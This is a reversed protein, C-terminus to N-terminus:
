LTARPTSSQEEEAALKGALERFSLHGAAMFILGLGVQFGTQCLWLVNAYAMGQAKVVAAPFFLTVGVRLAAQFTGLMGPASPIMVGGVLVSMLMFAQFLTLGFPLCAGAGPPCAFARSLMAMGLGNLGWYAVTYLTFAILQGAGPLQRMAGVFADVVDAVRDAVHPAFRGATSRVLQVTWAQRWRAFLLFALGGTFFGFMLNGGLKVLALNPADEPIYFLLARLLVAVGIGDVIRELVVSTMAASKRISSREAILYPRAFEGLRFPLVILMMFGIASAENLKRFPVKELGSLLCGWRLTRCLHIAGLIALYPLLQLYDASKLSAWQENWKVGRFAWLSAVFTVALSVALNLLRKM